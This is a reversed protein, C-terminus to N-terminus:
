EQGLVWTLINIKSQLGVQILALPANINVTAVGGSVNCKDTRPYRDDSLLEKIKERIEKETRM